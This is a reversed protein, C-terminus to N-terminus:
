KCVKLKQLNRFYLPSVHTVFTITYNQQRGPKKVEMQPKINEEIKQVIDRWVAREEPSVKVYHDIM